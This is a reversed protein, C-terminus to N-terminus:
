QCDGSTQHNSNIVTENVRQHLTSNQSRRNDKSQTPTPAESGPRRLEEEVKERDETTFTTMHVNKAFSYSM